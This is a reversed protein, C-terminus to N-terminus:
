ELGEATACLDPSFRRHGWCDWGGDHHLKYAVMHRGLM